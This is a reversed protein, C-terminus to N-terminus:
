KYVFKRLDLLKIVDDEEFPLPVIRHGLRALRSEFEDMYFDNGTLVFHIKKNYIAANIDEGLKNFLITKSKNLSQFLEAVLSNLESINQEDTEKILALDDM